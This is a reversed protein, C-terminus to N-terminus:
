EIRKRKRYNGSSILCKTCKAEYWRGTYDKMVQYGNECVKEPAIFYWKHEGGLKCTYSTKDNRCRDYVGQLLSSNKTQEIQNFHLTHVTRLVEEQERSLLEHVDGGVKRGGTQDTQGQM